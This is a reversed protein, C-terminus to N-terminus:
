EPILYVLLRHLAFLEFQQQQLLHAWSNLPGPVPAQAGAVSLGALFFGSCADAGERPLSGQVM